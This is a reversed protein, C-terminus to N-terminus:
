AWQNKGKGYIDTFCGAMLLALKARLAMEEIVSVDQDCNSDWRRLHGGYYEKKKKSDRYPCM